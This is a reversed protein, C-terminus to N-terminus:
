GVGGGGGGGGDTLHVIPVTPRNWASDRSSRSPDEAPDTCQVPAWPPLQGHGHGHRSATGVNLGGGWRGSATHRVTPQTDRTNTGAPHRGGDAGAAPCSVAATVAPPPHVVVLTPDRPVAKCLPAPEPFPPPTDHIPIYGTRPLM